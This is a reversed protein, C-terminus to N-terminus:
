KKFDERIKKLLDSAQTQGGLGFSLGAAIALAAVLGTFMVQLFYPAINLQFLAAFGVFIYVVYRTIVSLVKSSTAGISAAAAKVVQSLVNAILGGLLLITLAIVVNPIFSLLKELLDSVGALGLIKFAPVLFAIITLWSVFSGCVEPAKFSIGAKKLVDTFNIRDFFKQIKISDLITIVAWKIIRAIILGLIVIVVAGILLETFDISRGWYNKISESTINTWGSIDM